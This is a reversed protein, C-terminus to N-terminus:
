EIGFLKVLIMVILVGIMSILGGLAIGVWLIPDHVTRTSPPPPGVPRLRDQGRRLLTELDVREKIKPGTPKNDNM